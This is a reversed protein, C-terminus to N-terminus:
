IRNFKMTQCFFGKCGSLKMANGSILKVSGQYTDGNYKLAGEWQDEDTAVAGRVVYRGLLKMNEDTKADDRLWTLRACLQKGNGCYSVKYQSEGTSSQWTGTPDAALAPATVLGLAVVAAALRKPLHM